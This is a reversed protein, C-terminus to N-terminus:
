DLLIKHLASQFATSWNNEDDRVTMQGDAHKEIINSAFPLGQLRLGAHDYFYQRFFVLM